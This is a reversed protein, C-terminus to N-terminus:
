VGADITQIDVNEDVVAMVQPMRVAPRNTYALLGDNVPVRPAAEGKVDKGTTAPAETRQDFFYNLSLGANYSSPLTHKGSTYEGDLGIAWHGMDPVNSWVLSATYDNYPQRVGGALDLEINKTINQYITATCGFGTVRILPSFIKAYHVYDYNLSLGAKTGNRPSVFLGPSIGWNNSGALHRNDSFTNQVQCLNCFYTGNTIGINQNAVHAYFGQIDISPKLATSFDYQYDAGVAFQNMWESRNGSFFAYTLDQAIYEASVKTRTNPSLIYGVTGDFRYNNAGYEAGVSLASSADIVGTYGAQATPGLFTTPHSTNPIAAMANTISAIAGGLTLALRSFRKM